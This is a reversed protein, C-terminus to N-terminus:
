VVERSHLHITGLFLRAKITLHKIFQADMTLRGCSLMITLKDYSIKYNPRVLLLMYISFVAYNIYQRQENSYIRLSVRPM